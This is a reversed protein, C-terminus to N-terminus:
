HEIQVKSLTYTIALRHSILLFSTFKELCLVYWLKVTLILTVVRVILTTATGLCKTRCCKKASNDLVFNRQGQDESDRIM